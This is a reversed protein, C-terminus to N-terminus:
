ALKVTSLSPSRNAQDIKLRIPQNPKASSSDDNPAGPTAKALRKPKGNDGPRGM